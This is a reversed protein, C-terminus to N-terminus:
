DEANLSNFSDELAAFESLTNKLTNQINSSNPTGEKSLYQQENVSKVFHGHDIEWLTMNKMRVVNNDVNQQVAM